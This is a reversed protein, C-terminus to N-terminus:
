LLNTSSTVKLTKVLFDTTYERVDNAMETDRFCDDHVIRRIFVVVQYSLHTILEFNHMAVGGRISGLGIASDLSFIIVNLLNKSFRDLMGLLSM